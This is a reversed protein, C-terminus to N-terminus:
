PIPIPGQLVRYFRQQQSAPVSDYWLETPQTFTLNTLGIWSNPNALNTSYQIGYTIGTGGTITLGPYTNVGPYLAITVLPPDPVFTPATAGSFGAAVTGVFNNSSLDQLTTTGPAISTFDFLVQTAADPAPAATPPMVFNGSYRANGSVRVWSIAGIFSAAPLAYGDYLFAGIGMFSSSSNGIPQDYPTATLDRTVVLVGDIYNRQEHADRVFALHHWGNVSITVNTSFVGADSGGVWAGGAIANTAGLLAKDCAASKQESFIRGGSLMLTSPFLVRAEITMQYTAFTHGNVSITDTTRSFLAYGLAPPTTAAFFVALLSYIIISTPRKM